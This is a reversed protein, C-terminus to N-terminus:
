STHNAFSNVDSFDPNQPFCSCPPKLQGILNMRKANAIIKKAKYLMIINELWNGKDIM